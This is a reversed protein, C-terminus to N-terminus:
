SYTYARISPLIPAESIKNDSRNLRSRGQPAQLEIQNYDPLLHEKGEPVFLPLSVNMAKRKTTQEKNEDQPSFVLNARVVPALTQVQALQTDATLQALTQLQSQIHTKHEGLAVLLDQAQQHSIKKISRGHNYWSFGIKKVPKDLLPIHRYCQKLHVRGLGSLRLQERLTQGYTSLQEHQQQWDDRSLSQKARNVAARFSEKQQNIRQILEATQQDAVIIGHRSRTERGDQNGQYWLDSLLTCAHQLADDAIVKEEGTIPYYHSPRQQLLHQHLQSLLETLASFQEAIDSIIM